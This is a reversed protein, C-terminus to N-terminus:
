NRTHLKSTSKTFQNQKVGYNVILTNSNELIVYVLARSSATRSAGEAQLMLREAQKELWFASM